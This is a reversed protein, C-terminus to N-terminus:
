YSLKSISVSVSSVSVSSVRVGSVSVSVELVLMKIERGWGEERTRRGAKM